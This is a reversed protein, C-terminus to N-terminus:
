RFSSKSWKLLLRLVKRSSSQPLQQATQAEGPPEEWIIGANWISISPWWVTAGYDKITSILLIKEMNYRPGESPPTLMQKSQEHAQYPQHKIPTGQGLPKVSTGYPSAKSGYPSGKLPTGSTGYPSAKLPTSSLSNSRFSTSTVLCSSLAEM